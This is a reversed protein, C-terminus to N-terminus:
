RTWDIFGPGVGLELEWVNIRPFSKILQVGFDGLSGIEWPNQVLFIYYSELVLVEFGSTGFFDLNVLLVRGVENVVVGGFKRSIDRHGLDITSFGRLLTFLENVGSEFPRNYISM